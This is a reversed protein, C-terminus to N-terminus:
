VVKVNMDEGGVQQRAIRVVANEMDQTETYLSIAKSINRCLRMLKEVSFM